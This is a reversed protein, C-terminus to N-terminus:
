HDWLSLNQIIYQQMSVWQHVTYTHMYCLSDIMGEDGCFNPNCYMHMVCSRAYNHLLHVHQFLCAAAKESWALCVLEAPTPSRNRNHITFSSSQRHLYVANNTDLTNTGKLGAPLYTTSIVALDLPAVTTCQKNLHTTKNERHQRRRRIGKHM